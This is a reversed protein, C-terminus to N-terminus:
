WTYGLSKIPPQIDARIGKLKIECTSYFKLQSALDNLPFNCFETVAKMADGLQELYVHQEDVKSSYIERINRSLEDYKREVELKLVGFDHDLSTQLTEMEQQLTKKYDNGTLIGKKIDSLRGKLDDRIKQVDFKIVEQYVHIDGLHHDKHYRLCENCM